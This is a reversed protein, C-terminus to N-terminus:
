IRRKNLAGYFEKWTLLRVNMTAALAVAESTPGGNPDTVV